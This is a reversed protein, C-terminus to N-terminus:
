FKRCVVELPVSVYLNSLNVFLDLACIYSRFELQDVSVGEFGRKGVEVEADGVNRVM